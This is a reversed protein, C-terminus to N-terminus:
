FYDIKKCGYLFVTLILTVNTELEIATKAASFLVTDDTICFFFIASPM